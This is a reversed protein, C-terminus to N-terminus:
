RPPRRARRWRVAARGHARARPRRSSPRRAARDARGCRCGPRSTPRRPHACAPDAPTGCRVRADARGRTSSAARRLCRGRGRPRQPQRSRTAGAGSAFTAHVGALRVSGPETEPDPEDDQERDHLDVAPVDGLAGLDVVREVARAERGRADELPHQEARDRQRDRRPLPREECQTTRAADPARRQDGEPREQEDRRDARQQALEREVRRLFLPERRVLPRGGSVVTKAILTATTTSTQGNASSIIKRPRPKESRRGYPRVTATTPDAAANAATWPSSSPKTRTKTRASPRPIMRSSVPLVIGPKTRWAVNLAIAIAPAAADAAPASTDDFAHAARGGADESRM